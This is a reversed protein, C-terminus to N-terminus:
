IIKAREFYIGFGNTSVEAGIAKASEYLDNMLEKLHGTPKSIQECALIMQAVQTLAQNATTHLLQADEGCNNEIGLREMIEGFLLMNREYRQIRFLVVNRWFLIGFAFLVMPWMVAILLWIGGKVALAIIIGCVWLFISYLFIVASVTPLDDHILVSMVRGLLKDRRRLIKILYSDIMKMQFIRVIGDDKLGLIKIMIFELWPGFWNNLTSMKIRRKREILPKRGM